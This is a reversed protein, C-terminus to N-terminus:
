LLINSFFHSSTNAMLYVMVILNSSIVADIIRDNKTNACPPHSCLYVLFRCLISMFNVNFYFTNFM